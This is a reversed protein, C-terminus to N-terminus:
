RANSTAPLYHCQAQHHSAGVGTSTTATGSPIVGSDGAGQYQEGQFIGQPFGVWCDVRNRSGRRWICCPLRDVYISDNAQRHGHARRHHAAPQHPRRNPLSQLEPRDGPDVCDHQTHRPLSYIWPLPPLHPTDPETERPQHHGLTWARPQLRPIM